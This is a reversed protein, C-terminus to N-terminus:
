KVLDIDEDELEEMFVKYVAELQEEDELFEYVAETSSEDSIDVLIYAESEDDENDSDTVLLYDKGSIRTQSIIYFDILGEETEFQIKEM